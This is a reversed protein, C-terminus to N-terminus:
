KWLFRKRSRIKGTEPNYIYPDGDYDHPIMKIFGKYYLEKLDNPFRGYINKFNEIIPELRKKDMEFKIMYLHHYAVEKEYNTKAKNYINKWLEYSFSLDGSKWAIDAWVRKLFAPSDERHAAIEYYYFAKKYKKRKRLYYGADMAMTWEYPEYRLGIELAKLAIDLRGAQLAAIMGGITFPESFKPDLEGITELITPLYEIREGIGSSSYFQIMWIYYFDAIINEFGLSILKLTKKPFVYLAENTEFFKKKFNYNFLFSILFLVILLFYLVFTKTKRM